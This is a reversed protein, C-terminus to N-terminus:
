VALNPTNQQAPKSFWIGFALALYGSFSTLSFFYVLNQNNPTLFIILYPLIYQLLFYLLLFKAITPIKSFDLKSDNIKIRAFTISFISIIYISSIMLNKSVFKLPLINFVELFNTFFIIIFMSVGFWELKNKKVSLSLFVGIFTLLIAILNLTPLSKGVQTIFIPLIPSQFHFLGWMLIVLSQFVILLSSFIAIKRLWNMSEGRRFFQERTAGFICDMLASVWFMLTRRELKADELQLHFIQLMEHGFKLRFDKPYAQLLIKYAWLELKM